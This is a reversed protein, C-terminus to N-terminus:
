KAHKQFLDWEDFSSESRLILKTNANELTVYYRSEGDKTIEFLDSVWYNSYDKKLQILLPMPLQSPPLNRTVAMLEGEDSYYGYFIVADISFTLKTFNMHNEVSMLHASKFDRQFSAKVIARLEDNPAAFSFSIGVTLLLAVTIALKKSGRLAQQLLNTTTNM